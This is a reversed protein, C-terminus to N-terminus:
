EQVLKLFKAESRDQNKLMISEVKNLFICKAIEANQQDLVHKIMTRSLLNNNVDSMHIFSENNHTHATAQSARM